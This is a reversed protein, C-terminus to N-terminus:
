RRWGVWRTWCCRVNHRLDDRFMEVCVKASDEASRLQIKGKCGLCVFGSWWELLRERSLHKGVGKVENM